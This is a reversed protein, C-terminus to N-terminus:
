DELPDVAHFHIQDEDEFEGISKPCDIYTGAFHPDDAWSCENEQIRVLLRELNSHLHQEYQVYALAHHHTTEFFAEAKAKRYALYLDAISIFRASYRSM